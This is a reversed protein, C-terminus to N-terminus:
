VHLIFKDQKKYFVYFGIIFSIVAILLCIVNEQISPFTQYMVIQRFYDVMYYLPNIKFIFQMNDPLVNAPYFLPTFYMWATLLVEYLYSVDRFFVTLASLLMGIGVSFLFVYVLALPLLLLVPTIKVGVVLMVLIMAILSFGTNVLSSICRSLPFIYKPVYVKKILSANGVISGMSQITANSYMDWIIRGTLVYVPFYPIDSKFLNSFVLTLVVMMLLPHLVSWLIGLVSRRYRLKIDNVVLENLLFRYKLFNNWYQKM